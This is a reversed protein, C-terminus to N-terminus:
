RSADKPPFASDTAADSGADPDLLTCRSAERPQCTGRDCWLTRDCGMTGPADCADGVQAFRTQISVCARSGSTGVAECTLDEDCQTERGSVYSCDDGLKGITARECKGGICTLTKECYKGNCDGGLPVLPQCTDPPSPNRSCALGPACREACPEGNGAPSKCTGSYCADGTACREPGYLLCSKGPIPARGVGPACVGCYKPGSARQSFQCVLSACQSDYACSTGAPLTGPRSLCEFLMTPGNWGFNPPLSAELEMLDVCATTTKAEALCADVRSTDFGPATAQAVCARVYKTRDSPNYPQSSTQTGARSGCRRAMALAADFMADCKAVIPNVAADTAADVPTADPSPTADPTAGTDTAADPPPDSEAPACASFVVAPGLLGVVVLGVLLSRHM